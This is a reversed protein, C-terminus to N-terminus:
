TSLAEGTLRSLVGELCPERLRVEATVLGARELRSTLDGVHMLDGDVAGTWTVAGDAPRLALAQLLSTGSEDPPERLVIKLEKSGGFEGRILQRPCGCLRIRGHLMFAVRDAISEAQSLDHTTLLVAIGAASLRSLLEHIRDRANMDVGVTPEDLLIVDPHHLLSAVINLRRRMGGSLTDTYDDARDALGAWSLAEEVREALAARAVGMMRGFVQLNERVSLYAYVALHQPVFGLRRRVAADRRPDSGCLRVTGSDLAVRGCASALLTSKGAGNPGLLVLVEGAFLDLDVENLARWQGLTKVARRIRLLPAEGDGNMSRHDTM